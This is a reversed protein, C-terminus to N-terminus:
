AVAMTTSEAVVASASRLEIEHLKKCRSCPIALNDGRKEDSYGILRLFRASAPFSGVFGGCKEGPFRPHRSDARCRLISSM